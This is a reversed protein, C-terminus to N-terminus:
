LASGSCVGVVCLLFNVSLAESFVLPASFSVDGRSDLLSFLCKWLVTVSCWRPLAYLDTDPFDPLGNDNAYSAHVTTACKSIGLCVPSAVGCVATACKCLSWCPLDHARAACLVLFMAYPLGYLTLPASCSFYRMLCVMSRSLPASCSFCVMLCAMIVLFATELTAQHIGAEYTAKGVLNETLQSPGTDSPATNSTADANM